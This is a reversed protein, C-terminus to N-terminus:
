PCFTSISSGSQGFINRWWCLDFTKKGSINLSKSQHIEAPDLEPMVYSNDPSDFATQKMEHQMVDKPIDIWVPGPRGSSAIAFAEEILGPLEETTKPLFSHKVYPLSMGIVDVEQFADTGLISCPVQGTIIVLPVSDTFADAVGTILNTAGPGSTGWCVGVQGTVRAYGQAAFAAAQEHRVLIHEIEVDLLADYLPMIAGGPYGYVTKVGQNILAKVLFTAGNM